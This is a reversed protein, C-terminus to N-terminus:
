GSTLLKALYAEDWGARLRKNKVGLKLSKDNKLLNLAIHR